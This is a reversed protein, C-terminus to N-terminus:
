IQFGNCPGYTLVGKSSVLERVNNINVSTFLFRHSKETFLRGKVTQESLYASVLFFSTSKVKAVKVIVFYFSTSTASFLGLSKAYQYQISM